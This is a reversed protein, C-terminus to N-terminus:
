QRTQEWYDMNSKAIRELKKQYENLLDDDLKGAEADDEFKDRLMNLMIHKVVNRKWYAELNFYSLIGTLFAVMASLILGAVVTGNGAIVGKLGLIVTNLMSIFFTVGQIGWVLKKYKNDKKEYADHQKLILEYMHQARLSLNNYTISQKWDNQINTKCM